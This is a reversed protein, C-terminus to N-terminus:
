KFHLTIRIFEVASEYMRKIAMFMIMNTARAVPTSFLYVVVMYLAVGIVAELASFKPYPGPVNRIVSLLGFMAVVGAVAYRWIVGLLQWIDIVRRLLMVQLLLAALEGILAAWAASIMGFTPVLLITLAVNIGSGIQVPVSVNRFGRDAAMQQLALSYRWSAVIIVFALIQLVDGTKAFTPGLFWYVAQTGVTAVGVALIISLASSYEIADYFSKAVGASDGNQRQHTVKTMMAMAIGLVLAIGVKVLLEASYYVAVDEAGKTVFLIAKNLYLSLQPLLSIAFYFGLSKLHIKATFSDFTIRVLASPLRIWLLLNAFITTVALLIIFRSLDSPSKVFIILPVFRLMQVLSDRRVVVRTKNIGNYLWAIDLIAGIYFLLQLIFVRTYPLHTFMIFAWTMAALTTFLVLQVSWVGWFFSSNGRKDPPMKNLESQAYIRIATSAVAITLMILTYTGVQVGLAHLQLIHAVYTLFFLPVLETTLRMVTEQIYVKLLQM